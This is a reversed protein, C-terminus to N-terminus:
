VISLNLGDINVRERLEGFIRSDFCWLEKPVIKFFHWLAEVDKASTQNMFEDNNASRSFYNEAASQLEKSDLIETALGSLQLGSVDGSAYRETSFIAVSVKSEKIINKVHKTHMMSIFYLNMKEDYSFAVPCTWTDGDGMTSLALFETRDLIERVKQNWDIENM